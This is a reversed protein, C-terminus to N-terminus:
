ITDYRIYPLHTPFNKKQSQHPITNTTTCYPRNTHLILEYTTSTRPLVSCPDFEHELIAPMDARYKDDYELKFKLEFELRRTRTWIRTWIRTTTDLEYLLLISATTRPRLRILVLDQWCTITGYAYRRPAQRNTYYIPKTKATTNPIRLRIPVSSTTTNSTTPTDARPKDTRTATRHLRLTTGLWNREDFSICSLILRPRKDCGTDLYWNVENMAAKMASDWDVDNMAASTETDVSTTRRLMYLKTETLFSQGETPTVARDNDPEDRLRILVLEQWNMNAHMDARSRISLTTHSWRCRRPELSCARGLRTWTVPMDAHRTQWTRLATRYSAQRSM